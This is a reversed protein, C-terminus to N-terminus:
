INVTQILLQAPDVRCSGQAGKQRVHLSWGIRSLAHLGCDGQLLKLDVCRERAMRQPMRWSALEHAHLLTRAHAAGRLQATGRALADAANYM